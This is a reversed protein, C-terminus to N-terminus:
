APVGAPEVLLEDLASALQRLSAELRAIIRGADEPIGTRSQIELRLTMEVVPSPGFNGAAGRLSHLARCLEPADGAEVAARMRELLVPYDQRFLGIIERLLEADGECREHIAARDLSLPEAAEPSFAGNLASELTAFLEATQLPKGLYADMGAALCRERDGTMAHATLAIIPTHRGSGRERARIAATAEFGGMEPMQVDMLVVDFSEAQWAMLAERGNNAVAVTHGRKALLRVALRQNVVNDEALLICLRRGPAEEAMAEPRSAPDATALRPELATLIADLLESQKIPKILYASLGLERCRRADEQSDASTLMLITAGALDAQAQIEAALTLGDMGPMMSDLLVLPYPEAAAAARRLEALAAAGGEVCVPRMLWGRAMEQLILRNTANDDVVLVPLGALHVPRPPLVRSVSGSARPLPICFHFTSGRGPESEAGLRGGMLEVLRKSIALGLGTGGYRRTTSGDAQVFADFVTGLKDAPIGIGTDRVAFRIEPSGPAHAVPTLNRDSVSGIDSEPRERERSALSVEVIVEGRETFKVANGVLNVLVQRLRGADGIVLEPVDPHVRCALELGKVHARLALVKVADGVCERLSFEAPDLDIKGAEIKSFDLIDNIVALLADASTKVMGLYERQEPTLETGLALETMGLIGNMPTRIEHSMNALFESKARNALEARAQALRLSEAQRTMEEAQQELRRRAEDVDEAYRRLRAESARLEATRDAVQQETAAHAAELEAQRLAIARMEQQGRRCSHILFIDIFVVWGAHELWRWNAGVASGYVSQPWLLGRLFHDAAVVASGTLLVRGDRYFALLALSGFVHFHTELRGGTLHILLAGLLMQAVAIAHRTLVTGSFRLVLLLPLSVVVAGLLLAAWVHPHTAASTGAWTRPSVWLAAGIAVLWQFLLLGAFLRDVNRCLTDRHEEFLQRARDQIDALSM